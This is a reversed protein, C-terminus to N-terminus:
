RTLIVKNDKITYNIQVTKFVSALAVALNTNDFTGTFVINTDINKAEIIIHFQNELATIVEKLPVSRFSSEGLIWSPKLNNLALTEEKLNGNVNQVMKNPTLIFEKNNSIVSVKGQYCIVEFFKNQSNVNFQTGLVTVSGNKTTVTFTSGKQVKFFAEGKLYVERRSQWDKKNYTLTSKANLIVESGDLLAVTKHEGYNTEFLVENNVLFTNISFFLVISAAVAIATKTFLPIIKRKTEQPKVTKKAAIKEQINAFMDNVPAELQEHLLIAAQIKKYESFDKESVEKKLADDTIEGAMWKALYTDNYTIKEEM